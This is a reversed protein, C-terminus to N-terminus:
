EIVVKGKGLLRYQADTLAYVYVGAPLDAIVITAAGATSVTEQLVVQGATNYLVLQPQEVGIPLQYSLHLYDTAPNPTVQLQLESPPPMSWGVVETPPIVVTSDCNLGACTNGLSDITLVWSQQPLPSFKYGAMVYGRGDLTPELDKIYYSANSDIIFPKSWLVHGFPDFQILLPQPHPLPHIAVLIFGQHNFQITTQTNTNPLFETYIKEWIIDGFQDIEAQYMRDRWRDRGFQDVEEVERCSSILYTFHTGKDKVRVTAACDSEVGGYTREWEVNGWYDIKQLHTDFSTEPYYQGGSMIYGLDPTEQIELSKSYVYPYNFTRYWLQNGNQNTKFVCTTVTDEHLQQAGVVVLGKDTTEIVQYPEESGIREYTKSWLLEGEVNFKILRADLSEDPYKWHCALVFHGDSTKTLQPGAIVNGAYITNDLYKFWITNGRQDIKRVYIAKNNISTYPGVVLYGDTIPEVVTALIGMTDAWYTQSFYSFTAQGYLLNIGGSLFVIIIIIRYFM